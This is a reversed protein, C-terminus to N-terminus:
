TKLLKALKARQADTLPPADRLVTTIRNAIVAAALARRAELEAARDRGKVARAVACKAAPMTM